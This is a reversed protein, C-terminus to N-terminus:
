KKKKARVSGTIIKEVKKESTSERRNERSKHSNPKYEEM